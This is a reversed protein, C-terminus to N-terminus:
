DLAKTVLRTLKELNEREFKESEYAQRAFAKVVRVGTLNEQLATSVKSDQEQYLEYARSVRKFFYISMVMIAPVVMGSFLALRVNLSLLAVFNIAFLMVIRGIGTVQESFFRRVADVDSTVRQILDGTPTRDHYTFSLRQIHDFLYNRLRRATSEATHAALRGSLFSSSGELLALSIVLYAAVPYLLISVLRVALIEFGLLAM